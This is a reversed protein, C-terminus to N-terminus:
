NEQRTTSRNFDLFQMIHRATATLVVVDDEMTIIHLCELEALAYRVDAEECEPMVDFFSSIPRPEDPEITLVELLLIKRM